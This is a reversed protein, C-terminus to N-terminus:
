GIWHWVHYEHSCPVKWAADFLEEILYERIMGLHTGVNRCVIVPVVEAGPWIKRVLPVYLGLLQDVGEPVFTYKAELVWIAKQAADLVLIDPQAFGRGNVDRFNIWQGHFVEQGHERRKKVEEVVRKEYRM